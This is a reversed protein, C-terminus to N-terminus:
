DFLGLMEDSLDRRCIGVTQRLAIDVPCWLAAGTEGCLGRPMMYSGDAQYPEGDVNGAKVLVPPNERNAKLHMGQIEGKAVPMRVLALRHELAALKLMEDGRRKLQEKTARAVEYSSLLWNESLSFQLDLTWEPENCPESKMVELRESELLRLMMDLRGIRQLAISHVPGAAEAFKFSISIWKEHIEQESAMAIGYAASLLDTAKM